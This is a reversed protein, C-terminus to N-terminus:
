AQGTARAIAARAARAEAPWLDGLADRDDHRALMARLAALLEPATAILAANAAAAQAYPHAGDHAPGSVQLLAHTAGAPFINYANRDQLKDAFWPGPTHSPNMNDIEL